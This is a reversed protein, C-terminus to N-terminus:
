RRFENRVQEVVQGLAEFFRELMNRGDVVFQKMYDYAKNLTEQLRSNELKLEENECLADILRTRLEYDGETPNVTINYVMEAIEARQLIESEREKLEDLEKEKNDAQEKLQSYRQSEKAVKYEVVSLDHNRGKEKEKIQENLIISIRENAFARLKDQLVDSLVEPTFVKRKSVQKYLGRKYGMAVPVGVVHMHPSDEDM